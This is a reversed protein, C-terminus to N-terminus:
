GFPCKPFSWSSAGDLVSQVTPAEINWVCVVCVLCDGIQHWTLRGFVSVPATLDETLANDWQSINNYIRPYISISIVRAFFGFLYTLNCCFWREHNCLKNKEMFPNAEWNSILVTCLGDSSGRKRHYLHAFCTMLVIGLSNISLTTPSQAWRKTSSVNKEEETITLDHLNAM